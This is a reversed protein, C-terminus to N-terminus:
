KNTLISRGPSMWYTAKETKSNSYRIPAIALQNNIAKLRTYFNFTCLLSSTDSDVFPWSKVM